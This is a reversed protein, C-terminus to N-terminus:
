QETKELSLTTVDEKADESYIEEKSMHTGDLIQFKMRIMHSDSDKALNTADFFRFELTGKGDFSTLRLRPQNGQACYHTAMLRDGDLHYITETPEGDTHRFTEVLASDGSIMRYSIRLGAARQTKPDTLKWTGALQRLVAFAARGDNTQFPDKEGSSSGFGVLALVIIGVIRTRLVSM